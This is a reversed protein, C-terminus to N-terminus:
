TIKDSKKKFFSLKPANNKKVVSADIYVSKINKLQPAQYMVNLLLSELISRLGRAGTKKKISKKSIEQLASNDFKLKINDLSFLKKYQKILANKPKCLVQILDKETLNDLEVIIPLRGIFEPILGYKILDQPQISIKSTSKIYISKKINKNFGINSTNNIRNYIINKLGFFSGGCIFLIKSTDIKWTEQQPHKRNGKIPVSAITGEIIKLLSQQVGEGSVDRTISINESKKTIKDIEDIYIIGKEAENIDYNSNEILKRLINEVDEGVYGAETLSTADAISFPVNLYKALTEAILTKGTGTPGILLINSKELKITNDNNLVYNLKKYHNYVAVSITKKAKKQGIIFKDLYKKIENPKSLPIIKKNKQSKKTNLIDYCLVVCQNCIHGSLGSIMKEIENEKKKCFSCFIYNQNNITNNM